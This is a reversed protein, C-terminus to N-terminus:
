HDTLCRRYAAQAIELCLKPRRRHYSYMEILEEVTRYCLIEKGIEYHLALEWNYTTLYCSGSGPCEFDRTKLTALKVSPSALGIGLNIMSARYIKEPYAGEASREWGDGFPEVPVGHRQLDRILKIREPRV